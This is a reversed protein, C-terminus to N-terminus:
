NDNTKEASINKFTTSDFACQGDDLHTTKHRACHICRFQRCDDCIRVEDKSTIVMEEDCYGCSVGFSGYEEIQAEVYGKEENCANDDEVTYVGAFDCGGEAYWLRFSLKPFQPGVKAVLALPPYWASEFGYEVLEKGEQVVKSEVDWKTGWNGLRWSYWDSGEKKFKAPQPVLAHLSLPQAKDGKQPYPGRGKAKKKFREIEKAPGTIKLLCECWNPM